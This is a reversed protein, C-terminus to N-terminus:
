ASADRSPHDRHRFPAGSCPIRITRRSPSGPSIKLTLEQWAAWPRSVSQRNRSRQRSVTWAIRTIVILARLPRPRTINISLTISM